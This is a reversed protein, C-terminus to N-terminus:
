TKLDYLQRLEAAAQEAQQQFNQAQRPTTFVMPHWGYVPDAHVKVSNGSLNIKEAVLDALEEATKKEKAM